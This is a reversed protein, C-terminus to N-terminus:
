PIIRPFFELMVRYKYNNHNKARIRSVMMTVNNEDGYYRKEFVNKNDILKPLKIEFNENLFHSLLSYTSDCKNKDSSEYIFVATIIRETSIRFRLEKWLGGYFAFTKGETPFFSVFHSDEHSVRKFGHNDLDVVVDYFNDNLSTNFFSDPVLSVTDTVDRQVSTSIDPKKNRCSFCVAVSIIVLLFFIFNRM